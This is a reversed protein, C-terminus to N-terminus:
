AAAEQKPRYYRIKHGSRGSKRPEAKVVELKGYACLKSLPSSIAGTTLGLIRAVAPSSLPQESGRLVMMIRHQVSM